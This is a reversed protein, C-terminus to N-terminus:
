LAAALAGGFIAFGAVLWTVYDGTQGSHLRRLRLLAGRGVTPAPDWIPRKFRGAGLLAAALVVSAGATLLGVAVERVGIEPAHGIGPAPAETGLVASAYLERDSFRVATEHASDVAGPVLGPLLGAVILVAATGLMVNPVYGRAGKIEDAESPPRGRHAPGLGLFIRGAARLLAAATLITALAIPVVIWGYGVEIAAEDILSKGAFAGFPPVAALGLAGAAFLGGVLRPVRDGMGRLADEHVSGCRHIVIGICVFLGARLLGDAPVILAAGAVGAATLLGIGALAIGIQSITVFALLRKLHTQTLCMVAGVLATVIAFGILVARLGATHSSMPNEFVTWYIRAIAYLGIDSMVGTFVIAAPTPAVAYADALWFHFPVIAAKVMFGGVILAFAVLVLGDTRGDALAEGVQALNLAGTRGYLLAIGFLIMIAGISNVVAFGLAGQLAPPREIRYATMAYASVSMLEFFVFMNFLDGSLAFGALSGLFVLMLAHFFPGSLDFFRWTYILAAMVLVAALLALGAGLPDVALVVGIVAGDERPQWNGLNAVLPGDQDFAHVLVLGCFAIVASATATAVVDDQRRTMSPAAVLLAAVGFPVAVALPTLEDM